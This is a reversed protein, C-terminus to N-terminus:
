APKIQSPLNGSSELIQLHLRFNTWAVRGYMPMARYLPAGSSKHPGAPLRPLKLSACRRGLSEIANRIKEANELHM